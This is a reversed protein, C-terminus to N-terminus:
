KKDNTTNFNITNCTKKSLIGTIASQIEKIMAPTLKPGQLDKYTKYAYYGCLMADKITGLM